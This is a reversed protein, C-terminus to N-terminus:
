QMDNVTAAVAKLEEETCIMAEESGKAIGM